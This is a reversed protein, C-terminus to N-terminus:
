GKFCGYGVTAKKIATFAIMFFNQWIMFFDYNQM